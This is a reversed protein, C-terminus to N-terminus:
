FTADCELPRNDPRMFAGGVVGRLIVAVELGCGGGDLDGRGFLGEGPDGVAAEVVDDRSGRVRQPGQLKRLPRGEGTVVRVERPSEADQASAAALRPRIM